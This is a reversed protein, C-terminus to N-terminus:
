ARAGILQTLRGRAARGLIWGESWRTEIEINVPDIKRRLSAMIRRVRRRGDDGAGPAAPHLAILEAAGVIRGSRLKNLYAAELPTLQWAAPFSKATM